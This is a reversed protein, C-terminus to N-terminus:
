MMFVLLFMKIREASSGTRFAQKNLVGEKVVVVIVPYGTKMKLVRTIVSNGPFPKQDIEDWNKYCSNKLWSFISTQLSM